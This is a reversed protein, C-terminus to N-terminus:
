GGFLRYLIVPFAKCYYYFLSKQLRFTYNRRSIQKCCISSVSFDLNPQFTTLKAESVLSFPSEVKSSIPSEIYGLKM